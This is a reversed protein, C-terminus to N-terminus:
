TRDIWVVMLQNSTSNTSSNTIKDTGVTFESTIDTLTAIAAATAFMGVFVLEDGSAIGTVTHDGAAGGAVLTVKINGEPSGGAPPHFVDIAATNGATIAELAIGFFYPSKVNTITGPTGDHYYLPTVGAVINYTTATVSLEVVFPGFNVPTKGDDTDEDAEAIGTLIGLRVPDESDPAAPNTCIVSRRYGPTYKENQSM